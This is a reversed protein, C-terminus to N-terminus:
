RLAELVEGIDLLHYQDQAKAQVILLRLGKVMPLIKPTVRSLIRCISGLRQGLDPTEQLLRLGAM